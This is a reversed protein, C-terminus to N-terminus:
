VSENFDTDFTVAFHYNPYDREVESVVKNFCGVRDEEDFSIVLDFSIFKEDEDLHFGHMQLVGKYRETINRIQQEMSLSLEDKPRFPYVGIANLNVDLKDNVDKSIEKTLHYIEEASMSADVVINASGRHIYPGYDDIILDYVDYVGDYGGIISRIKDAFGSDEREGLIKSLAAALMEVGIRIIYIAILAGIWAEVSLGTSLYLLAALFTSAAIAADFLADKGSNMLAGSDVNRGNSYVYRSLIIKVFIAAFIITLSAIDYDPKLPNIIKKISEILATIGAYLIIITVVLESIYEMRGHGFPHEKDPPRKAMSAGVVAVLSSGADSFNNVGDLVIAISKTFFGIIVKASALAVNTAVSILSVKRIKKYRIYSSDKKDDM